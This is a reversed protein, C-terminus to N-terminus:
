GGEAPVRHKDNGLLISVYSRSVGFEIALVAQREGARGRMRIEAVQVDTLKTNKRAMGFTRRARGKSFMDATNEKATGLFLHHVNCCGPTDCVHCVFLGDPIPGNTVEWAYRHAGIHRNGIAWQGYGSRQTGATWLTCGRENPPAVRAWFQRSTNAPRGM